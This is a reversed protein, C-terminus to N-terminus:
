VLAFQDIVACHPYEREWTKFSAVVVETDDVDLIDGLM